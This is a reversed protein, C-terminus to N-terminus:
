LRHIMLPTFRTSVVLDGLHSEIHACWAVNEANAPPVPSNVEAGHCKALATVYEIILPFSSIAQHDHVLFPLQGVFLM